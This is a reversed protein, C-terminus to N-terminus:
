INGADGFDLQVPEPEAKISFNFDKLAADNSQKRLEAWIKLLYPLDEFLALLLKIYDPGHLSSM